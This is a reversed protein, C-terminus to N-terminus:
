IASKMCLASEFHKVYMFHLKLVYIHWVKLNQKRGVMQADDRSDMYKRLNQHFNQLGYYFFVDGQVSCHSADTLILM